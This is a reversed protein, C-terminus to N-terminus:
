NWGRMVTKSDVSYSLLRTFYSQSRADSIFVTGYVGRADAVRHVTDSLVSKPSDYLNLGRWADEFALKWDCGQVTAVPLPITMHLLDSFTEVGYLVNVMETVLTESADGEELDAEKIKDMIEALADWTVSSKTKLIESAHASVNLHSRVAHSWGEAMAKISGVSKLKTVKNTDCALAILLAIIQELTSGLASEFSGWGNMPKFLNCLSRSEDYKVDKYSWTCDGNFALRKLTNYEPEAFADIPCKVSILVSTSNVERVKVYAPNFTKPSGLDVWVEAALIEPDGNPLWPTDYIILPSHLVDAGTKEDKGYCLDDVKYIIHNAEDQPHLLYSSSIDDRPVPFRVKVFRPVSREFTMVHDFIDKENTWGSPLAQKRTMFIFTAAEGKNALNQIAGMNFNRFRRVPSYAHGVIRLDDFEASTTTPLGNLKKTYLVMALEADKTPDYDFARICFYKDLFNDVEDFSSHHVGHYNSGTTCREQMDRKVIVPMAGATKPKYSPPMLCYVDDRLVVHIQLSNDDLQKVYYRCYIVSARWYDYDLATLHDYGYYDKLPGTEFSHIQAEPDEASSRNTPRMTVEITSLMGNLVQKSSIKGNKEVQRESRIEYPNAIYSPNYRSQAEFYYLEPRGRGTSRSRISIYPVYVSGISTAFYKNVFGSYVPIIDRYKDIFSEIIKRTTLPDVKVPDLTVLPNKKTKPDKVWLAKGLMPHLDYKKGDVTVTGDFKCGEYLSTSPIQTHVMYLPRLVRILDSRFSEYRQLKLMKVDADITIGKIAWLIMNEYLEGTMDMGKFYAAPNGFLSSENYIASKAVSDKYDAIALETLKKDDNWCEAVNYPKRAIYSYAIDNVPKNYAIKEFGAIFRAVVGLVYSGLDADRFLEKKFDDTEVVASVLSVLETMADHFQNLSGPMSAIYAVGKHYLSMAIDLSFLLTQENKIDVYENIKKSGKTAQFLARIKGTHSFDPKSGDEGYVGFIEAEYGPYNAAPTKILDGIRDFLLSSSNVEYLFKALQLSSQVGMPLNSGERENTRYDMIKGTNANVRYSIKELLVPTKKVMSDQIAQYVPDDFMKKGYNVADDILYTVITKAIIGKM